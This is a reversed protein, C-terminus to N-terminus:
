QIEVIKEKHKLKKEQPPTFNFYYYDRSLPFYIWENFYFHITTNLPIYKNDNGKKRSPKIINNLTDIYM